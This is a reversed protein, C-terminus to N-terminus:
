NSCSNSKCCSCMMFILWIGAIGILAFVIRVLTAQNGLISQILNYEFIGTLGLNIAGLIVLVMATIGVGGMHHSKM